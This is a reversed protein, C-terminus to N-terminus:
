GYTIGIEKIEDIHERVLMADNMSFDINFPILLDYGIKEDKDLEKIKCYKNIKKFISTKYKSVFRGYVEYSKKQAESGFLEVLQKETIKGTKIKDIM